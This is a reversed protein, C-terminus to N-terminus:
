VLPLKVVKLYEETIEKGESLEKFKAPFKLYHKEVENLYKSSRSLQGIHYLSVYSYPYKTVFDLKILNEQHWKVLQKAKLSNVFATDKLEEESLEELNKTSKNKARFQKLSFQLVANEINSSTGSAISNNITDPSNLLIEGKEIYIDFSDHLIEAYKPNANRSIYGRVATSFKGKLSYQHNFVVTSDDIFKNDQKYSLFIKDGDKLHKGYGKIAFNEQATAALPLLSLLIFVSVKM